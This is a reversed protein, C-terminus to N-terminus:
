ELVDWGLSNRIRELRERNSDKDSVPQTLPYLFVSTRSVSRVLVVHDTPRLLFELDDLSVDVGPVAAISPATAYIYTSTAKQISAGGVTEIAKQLSKWATEDNSTQVLYTWPPVYRSPTKIASSSVGNETAAVGSLRLNVTSTTEDTVNLLKGRCTVITRAPDSQTVCGQRGASTAFEQRPPPSTTGDALATAPLTSISVFSILSFIRSTSKSLLAQRTFAPQKSFLKGDNHHRRIVHQQQQQLGTTEHMLLAFIFSMILILWCLPKRLDSILRRAM